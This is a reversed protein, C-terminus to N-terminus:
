RAFRAGIVEAAAKIDHVIFDPNVLNTQAMNAGDEAQILFTTAGVHKGLEIDCAKDGIVYSKALDGNWDRAAVEALGPKPKRCACGEDPHHPCYYIGDVRAGEMRLMQLLRAHISEVTVRDFFGRGIASQNTVIVVTLGLDNMFRIGPAANPLLVLADPSSLYGIDLNITGDRDLLVLANM